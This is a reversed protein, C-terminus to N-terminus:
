CLKAKKTWFVNRKDENRQTHTHTQFKFVGIKVGDATPPATIDWNISNELLGCLSTKELYPTIVRHCIFWFDTLRPILSRKSRCYRGSEPDATFVM